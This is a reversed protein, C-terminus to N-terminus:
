QRSRMRLLTCRPAPDGRLAQSSACRKIIRNIRARGKITIQSVAFFDQIDGGGAGPKEPAPKIKGM